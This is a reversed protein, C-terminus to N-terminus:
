RWVRGVRTLLFVLLIVVLLMGILGPWSALLSNTTPTGLVVAAGSFSPIILQVTGDDQREAVFRTILWTVVITLNLAGLLGALLRWIIGKGPEGRGILHGVAY